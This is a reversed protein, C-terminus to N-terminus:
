PERNESTTEQCRIEVCFSVSWIVVFDKYEWSSFGGPSKETVAEHGLSVAEWSHSVALSRWQGRYVKTVSM